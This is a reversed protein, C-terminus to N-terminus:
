TTEKDDTKDDSAEGKTDAADDDEADQAFLEEVPVTKEKTDALEVIFDVVREEFIPARLEAMAQPNKQYFEVVEKEQGPYQQAKEFVARRIEEESVTIENKEGIESLVLGLRVRRECVKEYDKRAEEETTGEDEFTKDAQKLENTVREWIANFENEVLKPPIEFQHAEDLKDLLQRKLKARSAEEYEQQIREQM